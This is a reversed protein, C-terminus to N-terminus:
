NLINKFIEFLNETEDLLKKAGQLDKGAFELWLKTNDKM